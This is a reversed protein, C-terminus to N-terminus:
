IDEEIALHRALLTAKESFSQVENTSLEIGVKMSALRRTGEKTTLIARDLAAIIKEDGDM